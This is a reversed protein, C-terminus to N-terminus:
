RFVGEAIELDIGAVARELRLGQDTGACQGGFAEPRRM